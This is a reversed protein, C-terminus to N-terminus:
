VLSCPCLGFGTGCVDPKLSLRPPPVYQSPPRPKNGKQSKNKQKSQGDCVTNDGSRLHAVPLFNDCWLWESLALIAYFYCLALTVHQYASSQVRSTTGQKYTYPVYQCLGQAQQLCKDFLKVVYLALIIRWVVSQFHNKRRNLSSYSQTYKRKM